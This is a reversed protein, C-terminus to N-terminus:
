HGKPRRNFAQESATSWRCNGPEYNGDNDIRDISHDSSPRSGMDALFADFSEWRPCVGIGRSGYNKWATAGTSTCRSWMGKWVSYEPTGAGGHRHNGMRCGCSQQRGRRLDTGVVVSENGCDCRCRWLANSAPTPTSGARAIVTLLGYREGVMNRIPRPGTSVPIGRRDHGKIWRARLDGVREGCGCACLPRPKRGQHGRIFRVPEGKTYGHATHSQVAITTQGGCGCECLGYM